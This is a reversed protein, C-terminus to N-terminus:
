KSIIISGDKMYCEWSTITADIPILHVRWGDMTIDTFNVPGKIDDTYANTSWHSPYTCAADQIWNSDNNVIFRLLPFSFCVFM